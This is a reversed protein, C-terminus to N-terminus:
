VCFDAPPVIVHILEEIRWEILVNNRTRKMNKLSIVLNVSNYGGTLWVPKYLNDNVIIHIM